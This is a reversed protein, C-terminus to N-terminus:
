WETFALVCRRRIPSTAIKMTRERSIDHGGAPGGRSTERHENAAAPLAEDANM